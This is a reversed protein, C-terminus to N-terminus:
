GNHGRLPAPLAFAVERALKWAPAIEPCEPNLGGEGRRNLHRIREISAGHAAYVALDAAIKADWGADLLAQEIRGRRYGLRSARAATFMRGHITM